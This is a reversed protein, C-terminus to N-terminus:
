KIVRRTALGFVLAMSASFGMGFALGVYTILNATEM